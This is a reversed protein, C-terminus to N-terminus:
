NIHVSWKNLCDMFSELNVSNTIIFNLVCNLEKRWREKEKGKREKVEKHRQKKLLINTILSHLLGFLTLFPPTSYYPTSKYMPHNPFAEQLLHCPDSHCPSAFWTFIHPLLAGPLSFLLHLFGWNSISQCKISCCSLRYVQLLTFLPFLLQVPSTLNWHTLYLHWNLLQIYGNLNWLSSSIHSKLNTLWVHTSSGCAFNNYPVVQFHALYADM